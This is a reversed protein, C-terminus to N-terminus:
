TALEELMAIQKRTEEDMLANITSQDKDSMTGMDAMQPTAKYKRGFSV